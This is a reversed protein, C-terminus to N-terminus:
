AEGLNALAANIADASSSLPSSCSGDSPEISRCHQPYPGYSRLRPDFGIPPRFGRLGAPRARRPRVQPRLRHPPEHPYRATLVPLRPEQRIRRIRSYAPRAQKLILIQKANSPLHRAPM